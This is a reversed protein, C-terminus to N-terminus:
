AVAVSGLTNNITIINITIIIYWTRVETLYERLFVYLLAGIVPRKVAGIGGIIVLGPPV